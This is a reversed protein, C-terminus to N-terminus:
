FRLDTVFGVLAMLGMDLLWLLVAMIATVAGIIMTTHTAEQRTPWIVKRVETRSERAFSLFTRGKTTQSALFLCVAVIAVFVGARVLVSMESYLNNGVVTAALMAFVVIWKVKDIMPSSEPQVNANM